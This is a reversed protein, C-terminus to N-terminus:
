KIAGATIGEALNRQFLMFVLLPPILSLFLGATILTIGTSYQGNLLALGVMLTRKSPEQLILLSFLLENWLWLFNLTILTLVGPRVLPVALTLFMTRGSAGDVEAAQFLEPPIGRFYSTMLYISFPLNLSAYVLVLGAYQNLLGLQQVVRFVPVMLVSSPMMMLSITGVFSAQRLPFKMHAFAFGAMSALVAILIVSIVVVIFSHAAYAGIDAQSWAQSINQFTLHTPPGVSNRGYAAETKFTTFIVFIIPYLASSALCLLILLLLARGWSLRKPHRPNGAQPSRRRMFRVEDRDAMVDTM